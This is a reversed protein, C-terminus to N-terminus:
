TYNDYIGEKIQLEINFVKLIKIFTNLPVATKGTEYDSYTKRHVLIKDALQAQTLNHSVRLRKIYARIQDNIEKM